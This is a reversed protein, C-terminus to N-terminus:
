AVARAQAEGDPSLPPNSQGEILEFPEGPVADASSGHRVVILETADPPPVFLGQPYSRSSM